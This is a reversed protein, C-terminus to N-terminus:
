PLSIARTWAASCRSWTSAGPRALGTGPADALVAGHGSPRRQGARQERCELCWRCPWKGQGHEEETAPQDQDHERDDDQWRRDTEAVEERRRQDREHEPVHRDLEGDDGPQDHEGRQRPEHDPAEGGRRELGFGRPQDGVGELRGPIGLGGNTRIPGGSAWPPDRRPDEGSPHDRVDRRPEGEDPARSAEDVDGIALEGGGEVHRGRDDQAHEALRGLRDGRDDDAPRDPLDDATEGRAPDREVPQLHEGRKPFGQDGDSAPWQDNGALEHDRQGGQDDNEQRRRDRRARCPVQNSGGQSRGAIREARREGHQQEHREPEDAQQEDGDGGGPPRGDPGEGIASARRRAPRLTSGIPM